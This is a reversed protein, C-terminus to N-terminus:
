YSSPGLSPLMTWLGGNKGFKLTPRGLMSPKPVNLFATNCHNSLRTQASRARLPSGWANSGLALMSSATWLSGFSPALRTPTLTTGFKLWCKPIWQTTSTSNSSSLASLLSRSCDGWKRIARNLRTGLSPCIGSHPPDRTLAMRGSELPPKWHLRNWIDLLSFIQPACFPRQGSQFPSRAKKRFPSQDISLGQTLALTVEQSSVAKIFGNPSIRRFEIAQVLNSLVGMGQYIWM